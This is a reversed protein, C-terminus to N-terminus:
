YQIQLHYPQKSGLGSANHIQIYYHGAPITAEVFEDQNGLSLSYWGPHTALNDDRLVLDYNHGAPINKLWLKVSGQTSLDFFYYDKVDQGSPFAGYYVLGSVLPGNAQLSADDNPEKEWFVDVREVKSWASDGWRNQAKVRYFFRTAGQGVVQFVTGPGAYRELASAFNSDRTEELVYTEAGVAADWRIAYAGDGDTNDIAQLAPAGPLPPWRQMVTPLFARWKGDDDLVTVTVDDPKLGDYAPDSSISPGVQILCIQEGDEEIDDSASVRAETGSDWNEQDLIVSPPSITCENNSAALPITVTVGPSSTITLTFVATGDPEAVTLSTPSVGIATTDNDEITATLLVPDLGTYDPDTSATYHTVTGSHLGEAVADDEAWVSVQQPVDWDGADFILVGLSVATQSDASVSVIVPTSPKKTLVVQYTTPPGGEALDM